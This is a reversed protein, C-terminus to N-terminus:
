KAEIKVATGERTSGGGEEGGGGRERGGEGGRIKKEM